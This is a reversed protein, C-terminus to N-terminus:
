LHTRHTMRGNQDQIHVKQIFGVTKQKRDEREVSLVHEKFDGEM